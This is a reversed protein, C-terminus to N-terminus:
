RGTGGSRAHRRRALPVAVPLMALLTLLSGAAMAVPVGAGTALFGIWLTGLPQTGICASLIGM